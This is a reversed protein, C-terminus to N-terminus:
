IGNWYRTIDFTSVVEDEVKIEGHCKGNTIAVNLYATIKIDQWHIDCKQRPFVYDLILQRLDSSLKLTNPFFANLVSVRFPDM